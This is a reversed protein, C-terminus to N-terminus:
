WSIFRGGHIIYPFHGKNTVIAATRVGAESQCSLCALCNTDFCYPSVRPMLHSPNGSDRPRQLQQRSCDM